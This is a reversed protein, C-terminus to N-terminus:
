DERGSVSVAEFPGRIRVNARILAHEALSPEARSLEPTLAGPLWSLSVVRSDFLHFSLRERRGAAKDV